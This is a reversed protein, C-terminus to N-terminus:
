GSWGASMCTKVYWVSVVLVVDCFQMLLLACMWFEMLKCWFILVWIRAVIEQFFISKPSYLLLILSSVALEKSVSVSLGGGEAILATVDELDAAGEDGIVQLVLFIFKTSAGLFWVASKSPQRGKFMYVNVCHINYAKSLSLIFFIAYLVNCCLVSLFFLRRWIM